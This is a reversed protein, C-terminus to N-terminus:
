ENDDNEDIDCLVVILWCSGVTSTVVAPVVLFAVVVLEVEAGARAVHV